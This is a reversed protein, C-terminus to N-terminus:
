LFFLQREQVMEEWFPTSLGQDFRADLENLVSKEEFKKSLDEIVLQM